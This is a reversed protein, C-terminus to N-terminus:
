EGEDFEDLEAKALTGPRPTLIWGHFDDNLRWYRFGKAAMVDAIDNVAIDCMERLIFAIDASTYMMDRDADYERAPEYDALFVDLVMAQGFTYGTAPRNTENNM